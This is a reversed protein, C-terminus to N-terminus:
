AVNSDSNREIMIEKMIPARTIKVHTCVEAIKVLTQNHELLKLPM